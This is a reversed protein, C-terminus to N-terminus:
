CGALTSSLASKEATDVALDYVSKVWVWERAYICWTNTNPPMWESPDSDGKSANSSQSVAILQAHTLDNAFEQRQSTSWSDAGSRWAEALAVIHDIDIDSSENVWIADYVSYWSGSTPQCAGDVSVDVGDRQLVVERTNCTGSQTIWHPFLDRSYGDLTGEAQVPLANLMAVAESTPPPTPPYAAGDGAVLVVLLAAVLFAAPIRRNSRSRV